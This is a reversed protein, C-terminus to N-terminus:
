EGEIIIEANPYIKKATEIIKDTANSDLVIKTPQSIKNIFEEKKRLDHINNVVEIREDCVFVEYLSINEEELVVSFTGFLFDVYGKEEKYEVIDGEYIDRGNCDQIGTFQGVSYEDVENFQLGRPMDWDSFGDQVIYHKTHEKYWKKIEEETSGLPNLTADIHKVYYGYIWQNLKIDYGRFKIERM